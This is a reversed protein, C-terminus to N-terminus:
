YYVSLVCPSHKRRFRSFVLFVNFRCIVVIIIYIYIYFLVTRRENLPACPVAAAAATLFLSHQWIAPSYTENIQSSSEESRARARARARSVTWPFRNIYTYVKVLFFVVNIARGRM